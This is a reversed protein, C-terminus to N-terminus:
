ITNCAQIDLSGAKVELGGPIKPIQELILFEYKDDFKSVIGPFNGKRAMFFRM